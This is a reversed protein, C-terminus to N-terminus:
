LKGKEFANKCDCERKKPIRKISENIISIIIDKNKKYIEKIEEISLERQLGAAYNSVLCISAYCIGIERALIAEPVLTMGVVHAFNKFMTIEAKTELRPGETAVYIGEYVNGKKKAEEVLIKRIVPCFPQSMDIHVAIDDYFTTKRKTFDIFDNPIFISGPKINKKMSGVTNIAIIREIGLKEMAKINGKYNVVHAPKHKKGHRPLFFINDKLKYVLIKGYETEIELENGEMEYFGTGGIIGIKM